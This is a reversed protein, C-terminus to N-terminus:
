MSDWDIYSKLLKYEAVTIKKDRVAGLLGDHKGDSYKNALDTLLKECHNIEETTFSPIPGDGSM